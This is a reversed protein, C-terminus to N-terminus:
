QNCSCACRSAIFLIHPLNIPSALFRQFEAWTISLAPVLVIEMDESQIECSHFGTRENGERSSGLKWSVILTTHSELSYSM